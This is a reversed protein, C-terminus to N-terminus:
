CNINEDNYMVENCNDDATDNILIDPIDKQTNVGMEKLAQMQSFLSPANKNNRKFRNITTTFCQSLGDFRKQMEILDNCFTVFTEYLNTGTNIIQQINENQKKYIFLQNVLRIVTLLSSTSVIIINSQYALQILEADQYILDISTEIPVYMLIFDPQFLESTNQYNKNALDM